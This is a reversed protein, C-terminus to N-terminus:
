VWYPCFPLASITLKWQLALCFFLIEGAYLFVPVALHAYFTHLASTSRRWVVTGSRCRITMADYTSEIALDFAWFVPFISIPWFYRELIVMYFLYFYHLPRAIASYIRYHFSCQSLCVPLLRLRCCSNCSIQTNPLGVLLTSDFWKCICYAAVRTAFSCKNLIAGLTMDQPTFCIRMPM